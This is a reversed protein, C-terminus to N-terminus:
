NINRIATYPPKKKGRSNRTKKKITAMRVPTIYFRLTMKIQMEKIALSKSCKKMCKNITQM